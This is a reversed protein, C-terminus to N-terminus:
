VSRAARSLFPGRKISSVQLCNTRCSMCGISRSNMLVRLSIRSWPCVSASIAAMSSLTSNSLQPLTSFSIRSAIILSSLSAAPMGGFGFRHSQPNTSRLLFTREPDFASTAGVRRKPGSQAQAPRIATTRNTVKRPPAGSYDGEPPLADGYNGEDNYEDESPPANGYDAEPPPADVYDGGRPPAYVVAPPYTTRPRPCMIPRTSM